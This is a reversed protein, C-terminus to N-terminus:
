FVRDPVELRCRIERFNPCSLLTFAIRDNLRLKTVVSRALRRPPHHLNSSLATPVGLWRAFPTGSWLFPSKSVMESARLISFWRWCCPKRRCWTVTAGRLYFIFPGFIEPAIRYCRWEVIEKSMPLRGRRQQVEIVAVGDEWRNSRITVHNGMHFPKRCKERQRM